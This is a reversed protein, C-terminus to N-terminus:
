QFTLVKINDLLIFGKQGQEPTPKLLIFYKSNQNTAIFSQIGIYVKNGGASPNFGVQYETIDSGTNGIAQLGVSFSVSSRYSIELWSEVLPNANFATALSHTVEIIEDNGIIPILGSYSGEILSDPNSTRSVPTAGAIINNFANGTEFDEIFLLKVNQRYGTKPLHNIINGPSPQLTFTDALYFSYPTVQNHMGAFDIGPVLRLTGPADAIIPVTAPLEFVGLNQNNFYVVVTPIKHSASGLETPPAAFAFSDIHLYTPVTEEPNIINCSPLAAVSALLAFAVLIPFTTKIKQFTM